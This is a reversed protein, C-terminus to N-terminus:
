QLGKTFDLRRSYICGLTGRGTIGKQIINTDFVDIKLM